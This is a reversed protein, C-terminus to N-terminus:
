QVGGKLKRPMFVLQSWGQRKSKKKSLLFTEWAPVSKPIQVMGRKTSKGKGAEVEFGFSNGFIESLSLSFVSQSHPVISIGSIFFDFGTGNLTRKTKCGQATSVQIANQDTLTGQRSKTQSSSLLLQVFLTTPKANLLFIIRCFWFRGHNLFFIFYFYSKGIEGLLSNDSCLFLVNSVPSLSNHGTFYWFIDLCCQWHWNDLDSEGLQWFLSVGHSSLVPSFLPTEL